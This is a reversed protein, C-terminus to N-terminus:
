TRKLASSIWFADEADRLKEIPAVAIKMVRKQRRRRYKGSRASEQGKRDGGRHWWRPSHGARWEWLSRRRAAAQWRFRTFLQQYLLDAGMRDIKEKQPHAAVGRRRWLRERARTTM